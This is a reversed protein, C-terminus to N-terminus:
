KHKHKVAADAVAAGTSVVKAEPVVMGAVSSVTQVVPLAKKAGQEVKKADKKVEKGVKGVDKKADKAVHKVGDKIKTFISKRELFQIDAPSRVNLVGEHELLDRSLLDFDDKDSRADFSHVENSM